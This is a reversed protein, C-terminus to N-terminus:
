MRSKVPQNNHVVHEDATVQAFGVQFHALGVEVHALAVLGGALAVLVEAFLALIRALVVQDHMFTYFLGITYLM